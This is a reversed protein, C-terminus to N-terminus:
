YDCDWIERVTEDANDDMTPDLLSCARSTRNNNIESVYSQDMRAQEEPAAASPELKQLPVQKHITELAAFVGRKEATELSDGKLHTCFNFREVATSFRLAWLTPAPTAYYTWIFSAGRKMHIVNVHRLTFIHVEDGDDSEVMITLFASCLEPIVTTHVVEWVGDTCRWLAAALPAPHYRYCASSM